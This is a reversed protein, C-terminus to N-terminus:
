FVLLGVNLADPLHVVDEGLILSVVAEAKDYNVSTIAHLQIKGIVGRTVAQTEQLAQLLHNALLSYLHSCYGMLHPQRVRKKM